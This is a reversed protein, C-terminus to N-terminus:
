SSIEDGELHQIGRALWTQPRYELNSVLVKGDVNIALAIYVPWFTLPFPLNWLKCYLVVHEHITKIIIEVTM